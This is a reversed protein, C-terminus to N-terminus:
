SSPVDVSIHTDLFPGRTTCAGVADKSNEETSEAITLKNTDLSKDGTSEALKSRLKTIETFNCDHEPLPEENSACPKIEAETTVRCHHLTSEKHLVVHVKAREKTEEKLTFSEM